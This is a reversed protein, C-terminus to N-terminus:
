FALLMTCMVAAIEIASIPVRKRHHLCFQNPRFIMPVLLIAIQVYQVYAISNFDLIELIDYKQTSFTGLQLIHM